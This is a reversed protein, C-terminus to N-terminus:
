DELTGGLVKAHQALVADDTHDDGAQQAAHVADARSIKTKSGAKDGGGHGGGLNGIGGSKGGGSTKLTALEKTAVGLKVKLTAVQADLATLYDIFAQAGLLTALDISVDFTGEDDRLKELLDVLAAGAEHKASPKAAKKGDEFVRDSHAKMKARFDAMKGAAVFGFDKAHRAKFAALSVDEDTKASKAVAVAADVQAKDKGAAAFMDALAKVTIKAEAGEVTATLEQDPDLAALEKVLVSEPSEVFFKDALQGVAQAIYEKLVDLDAAADFGDLQVSLKNGNDKIAQILTAEDGALHTLAAILHAELAMVTKAVKNAAGAKALDGKHAILAETVDFVADGGKKYGATLGVKKVFDVKDADTMDMSMANGAIATGILAAIAINKLFKM